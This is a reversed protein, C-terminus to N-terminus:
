RVKLYMWSRVMEVVQKDSFFDGWTASNDAISFATTPGVGLQKLQSFCSNIHILLDQDFYTYEDGLNTAIGLLKKIDNLISNDLISSPM